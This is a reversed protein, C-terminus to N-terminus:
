LMSRALNMWLLIILCFTTPFTNTSSYTTSLIVPYDSIFYKCDKKLNQLSYSKREKKHYRLSLYKKLYKMSSMIYDEEYNKHQEIYSEKMRINEELEQKSTLYFSNKLSNIVCNRNKKYFRFTGIGHICVYKLKKSFSIKDIISVEALVKKISSKKKLNIKTLEYHNEEIYNLFHQYELVLENLSQRMIAIERKYEYIRKVEETYHSIEDELEELKYNAYESFDPIDKQSNIFNTKNENRGLLAELFDLNYKKLKKDINEIATNNNSVVQCNKERILLNAIINLITQTKGTGPPGEVVSVRSHIANEVAIYQSMNCGFPFILCNKRDKVNITTTLKLYNALVQNLNDVNVRELKDCLIKQGGEAELSTFFSIEKIYDIIKKSTCGAIYIENGNLVKISNDNFIFRYYHCFDNFFHYAERINKVLNNKYYFTTQSIDIKEVNTLVTIRDSFYTYLRYNNYYRIVYSSPNSESRSCSAIKHTVIENDIIIM